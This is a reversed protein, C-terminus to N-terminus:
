CRQLKLLPAVKAVNAVSCSKRRQLELLAAVKAVEVM